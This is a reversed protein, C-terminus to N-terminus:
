EAHRLECEDDKDQTVSPMMYPVIALSSPSASASASHAQGSAASAQDQLFNDQTSQSHLDDSANSPISTSTMPFNSFCEFPASTRQTQVGLDDCTAESKGVSTLDALSSVFVVWGDDSSGENAQKLAEPAFISDQSQSATMACSSSNGQPSSRFVRSPQASM